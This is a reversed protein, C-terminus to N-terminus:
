KLTQHSPESQTAGDSDEQLPNVEIHLNQDSLLFCDILFIKVTNLLNM